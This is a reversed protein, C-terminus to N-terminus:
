KQRGEKLIQILDLEILEDPKEEIRGVEANNELVVVTPIYKIKFKKLFGEPVKKEANVGIYNINIYKSKSVNLFKILGPIYKKTERCWTGLFIYITISDKLTQLYQIAKQDPQYREIYIDFIRDAEIIEQQTVPGTLNKSSSQANLQSAIMGSIMIGALISIWRASNM